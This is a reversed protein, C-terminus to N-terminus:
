QGAIVGTADVDAQQAPNGDIVIDRMFAILECPDVVGGVDVLECPVSDFDVQRISTMLHADHPNVEFGSDVVVVRVSPDRFRLLCSSDGVIDESRVWIGIDEDHAVEVICGTGIGVSGYAIAWSGLAEDKFVGHRGNGARLPIRVDVSFVLLEDVVDKGAWIRTSTEVGVGSDNQVVGGRRAVVVGQSSGIGDRSDGVRPGGGGGHFSTPHHWHRTIAEAKDEPGAQQHNGHDGETDVPEKKRTCKRLTAFFGPEAGGCTSGTDSARDVLASLGLVTFAFSSAVQGRLTTHGSRVVVASSGNPAFFAAHAREFPFVADGVGVLVATLGFFADFV